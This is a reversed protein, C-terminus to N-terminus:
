KRASLVAACLEVFKSRQGPELASLRQGMALDTAAEAEKWKTRAPEPDLHPESWGLIPAMHPASIMVATRPEIGRSIVAAGHLSGRLERLVNLRHLALAKGQTPEEVESWGAFLALGAPSANQIVEGALEALNAYEVEDGLHADAWSVSCAAFAAAAEARSMVKASRDWAECVTDPNFFVFTAAVVAGCVDGLAGGRGAVYFDVGDFGLESGREYTARDMMFGAPLGVIAEASRNAAETADMKQELRETGREGPIRVEDEQSVDAFTGVPARAM